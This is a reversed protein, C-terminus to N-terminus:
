SRGHGVRKEAWLDDRTYAEVLAEVDVHPDFIRINKYSFQERAEHEEATLVAKLATTVLESKTMHQSLLWKRSHYRKITGKIFADNDPANFQIQLYGFDGTIVFLFEWDKYHVQSLTRIVDDISLTKPPPPGVSSPPLTQRPTERSVLEPFYNSLASVASDSTYDISDQEYEHDHHNEPRDFHDLESM